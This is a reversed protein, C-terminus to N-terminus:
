GEHSRNNLIAFREPKLVRLIETATPWDFGDM